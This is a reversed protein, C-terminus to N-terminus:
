NTPAVPGSARRLQGEAEAIRRLWYRKRLASTSEQLITAYRAHAFAYCLAPAESNERLIQARAASELAAVFAEEELDCARQIVEPLFPGDVEAAMRLVRQSSEPLRDIRALVWARVSEPCDLQLPEKQEPRTPSERTAADSAIERCMEVTFFPVGEGWEFIADMRRSDQKQDRLQQAILAHTQERNLRALRLDTVLHARRAAALLDFLGKSDGPAFAREPSTLVLFLRFRDEQARQVLYRLFHITEDQAWQADDVLALLPVAGDRTLASFLFFASAFLRATEVPTHAVHAPRGLPSHWQLDPCVTALDDRVAPSLVGPLTAGSASRVVQRIWASVPALSGLGKEECRASMSVCGEAVAVNCLERAFHTRGVGPEGTILLLRVEGCCVRRWEDLALTLEHARGALSDSDDPTQQFVTATRERDSPMSQTVPAAPMPTRQNRIAEYLATTEDQPAVRLERLLLERCEHYQRLALQPQGALTYLQMLRRQAPEHLPDLTVWRQAYGIAQQYGRREMMGTVLKDLVGGVECRLNDSQERQWDDFALDGPLTFGAMFDGRYLSAAEILPLLCHDCISDTPHGYHRCRSLLSRFHEVDVRFESGPLTRHLCITERDATLLAGAFAKTLAALTRRLSSRAHAQDDNPWFVAALDDRRLCTHTGDTQTALYALLALAHRRELDVVAGDRLLTPLGLLRLEFHTM